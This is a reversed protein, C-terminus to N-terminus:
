DICYKEQLIWDVDSGEMEALCLDYYPCDWSCDRTINRPFIKAGGLAKRLAETKRKEGWDQEAAAQSSPVVERFFFTNRRKKIKNGGNEYFAPDHGGEELAGVYAEYTINN